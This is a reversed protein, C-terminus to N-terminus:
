RQPPFNALIDLLVENVVGQPDEKMEGTITKSSAGHWVPEHRGVDYIDIALTGETYDSVAVIDTNTGPYYGSGWGGPNPRYINPYSSSQIKQRSGITFAIVFDAKERDAIRTFGRDSLIDETAQVLRGELSPSIGRAGEDKMLPHASIFSFTSYVGFNATPDYNLLPPPTSACGSLVIAILLFYINKSM